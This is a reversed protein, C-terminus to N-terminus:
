RPKPAGAWRHPDKLSAGCHLLAREVVMRILDEITQPQHYFPPSAPLIIAGMESLTLLNRLHITSLPSERPVIILKRREKLMVDASRTILDDSIGAAIRGATGMSCPIIILADPASSGSALPANLDDPHFSFVKEGPPGLLQQASLPGPSVTLGLEHQIVEPARNSLVLYLPDFYNLATELFRVGYICGSAGTIAVALSPM